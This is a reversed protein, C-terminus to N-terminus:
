RETWLSRVLAEGYEERTHGPCRRELEDLLKANPDYLPTRAHIHDWEGSLVEYNLASSAAALAQRAQHKDRTM